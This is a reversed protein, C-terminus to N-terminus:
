PKRTPTPTKGASTQTLTAAPQASAKPQPTVTVTPTPTWLAALHLAATDLWDAPVDAAPLGQLSEWDRIAAPVSLPEVALARLYYLEAKQADDAAYQESKNLQTYAKGYAEQELYVRCLAAAIEFSTPQLKLAAEYDKQAANWDEQSVSLEARGVLSPIDHTSLALAQDYAERAEEDQGTQAYADGLRRYVAADVSPAYRIYITLPDISAKLDDNAQYALGVTLYADLDTVDRELAARADELAASPDEGRALELQARYLYLLPSDPLTEAAQDLNTQASDLDGAALDLRALELAAPGLAPDLELAKDLDNRIDKESPAEMQEYVLARGLFAPAYLPSAALADNYASLAENSRGTLRYTEALLYYLDAAGPETQIAQQLYTEVRGWDQRQMARVALSYAETLPHPTLGAAPTATYTAALAEWPATPLGNQSGATVQATEAPTATINDAPRFSITPRLATDRSRVLQAGFVAFLILGLAAAGAGGYLALRKWQMPPLDAPRAIPTQWNRRQASLPVHLAPDAPAAGLIVLGRRAAQNAPDLRLVEKLCYIREKPTDVVASMWLWCDPNNKDTRLLRTLLDRARVRDGAEIAHFVEQFMPHDVSM